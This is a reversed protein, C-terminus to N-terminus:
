SEKARHTMGLLGGICMIISGVWIWSLLPQFIATLQIMNKSLDYGNLIVYLDGKLMSNYAVEGFVQDPRNAYERIEPYMKTLESDGRMVQIPVYNSYYNAEESHRVTDVNLTYEEFTFSTGPAVTMALERNYNGSFIVGFATIALGIHVIVVGAMRRNKIFVKVGGNKVMRVSLLLFSFLATAATLTLILSALRKHGTVIAFITVALACIFIPLYTKMLKGAQMQGFSMMPALGALLFIAIFFPTSVLNYSSQQVSIKDSLLMESLVPLMTYFILALTLAVFCLISLFFIGERSIFNFDAPDKLTERNNFMSVLFIAASIFIFLLFFIGLASKGFSHVSDTMIGSRTLYTGFITLEFTILALLYAWSKLRLKREYIVAAHLLATGTIWPFLSANEVPDWAWYGGWGLEVYAWWAGLVIGATLLVWAFLSWSRSTKVWYASTDHTASSAFAHAFPIVYAVFGIYLLPPHIIMGPNQLMPNMGNGDPPFLGYPNVEFPNTVFTCLFLIFTANFLGMILMYSNYLKGHKRMRYVEIAIFISALWAWFLLSGAQGGWLATL